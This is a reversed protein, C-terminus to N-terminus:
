HTFHPEPLSEMYELGLQINRSDRFENVDLRYVGRISRCGLWDEPQDVFFSIGDLVRDSQPPRLLWKIHREGVVRSQVVEFQGDFLPEPFGQGWPGSQRLLEAMELIMESVGLEGDTHIVPDLDRHSLHKAVERDFVETFEALRDRNLSLGAAMAHGGFKYLLHPHLTAIDSLVDRLHVGPISRASGKIELTGSPAFAIVPRHLRDKIRAALIGIVGQHWSEDFLCIGAQPTPADSLDALIHLADLKMQDEIERRERNLRDLQLALRKAHDPQDTVLCEIGVTMDELRGAANLRPAVAFGLDSASVVRHNRGAAELLALVGPHALGSRIRQLGQHVLIRNVHDLNVVDAVTGLSVLDLLQGLKPEPITNFWGGTRLRHRLASLVYFMVGVGALSKSPFLDGALNPNVIADAKPLEMGPLHHDTILVRIGHAKAVEVGDLSSIGNDVTLLIDPRRQAALTVIEPTLGYGFEFRNPVLYSVREAGLLRLGRLAVACATAGDADYDALILISRRKRIAEALHEVMVEMGSLLWPSPLKALSRDLEAVSNLPRSAYIRQLLPPLHACSSGLSQVIPRSVIKKKVPFYIM